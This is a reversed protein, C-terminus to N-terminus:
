KIRGKYVSIPKGVMVQGKKVFAKVTKGTSLSVKHFEPTPEVPITSEKKRTFMYIAIAIFAVTIINLKM